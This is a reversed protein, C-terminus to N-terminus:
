VRVHYMNGFQSLQSQTMTGGQSLVNWIEDWFIRTLESRLLETDFYPHQSFDLIFRPGFYVGSDLTESSDSSTGTEANLEQLELGENPATPVQEADTEQTARSSSSISGM